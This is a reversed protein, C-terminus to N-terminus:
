RVNFGYDVKIPGDVYPYDELLDSDEEPTPAEPPIPTDDMTLRGRHILM